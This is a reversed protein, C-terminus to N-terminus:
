RYVDAKRTQARTKLVELACHTIVGHASSVHPQSPDPLHKSLGFDAVQL